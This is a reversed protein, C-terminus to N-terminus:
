QVPDRMYECDDVISGLHLFFFSLRFHTKRKKKLHNYIRRMYDLHITPGHHLLKRSLLINELHYVFGKLMFTLFSSHKYINLSLISTALQRQYDIVALLIV